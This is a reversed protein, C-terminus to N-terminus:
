KVTLKEAELRTVSSSEFFACALDAAGSVSPAKSKGEACDSVATCQAQSVHVRIDKRFYRKRFASALRRASNSPSQKGKREEKEGAVCHFTDREPHLRLGAGLLACVNKLKVAVCWSRFLSFHTLQM